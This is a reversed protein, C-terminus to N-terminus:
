LRGANCGRKGNEPLAAIGLGRVALKGIRKEWM